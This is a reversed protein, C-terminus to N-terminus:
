FSTRREFRSSRPRWLASAIRDNYGDSSAAKKIRLHRRPRQNLNTRVRLLVKKLVLHRRWALPAIRASVSGPKVAEYVAIRVAPEVTSAVRGDNSAPVDKQLRHGGDTVHGKLGQM